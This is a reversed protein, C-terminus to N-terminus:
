LNLSLENNSPLSKSRKNVNEKLPEVNITVDKIESVSTDQETRSLQGYNDRKKEM